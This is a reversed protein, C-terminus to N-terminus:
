ERCKPPLDPPDRFKLIALAVSLFGQRPPFLFSLFRGSCATPLMGTFCREETEPETQANVGETLATNSPIFQGRGLQKPRLRFGTCNSQYAQSNARPFLTSINLAQVPFAALHLASHATRHYSASHLASPPPQRPFSCSSLSDRLFQINSIQILFRHKRTM